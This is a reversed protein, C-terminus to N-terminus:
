SEVVFVGAIWVLVYEVVYDVRLVCGSLRIESKAAKDRGTGRDSQGIAGRNGTEGRGHWALKGAITTL